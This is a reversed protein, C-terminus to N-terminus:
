RSSVGEIREALKLDSQTVGGADHTSLTMTVKTYRIDIDPHHDMEEAIEAVRDVVGIAAPFSPLRATRGIGSPDGTWGDLGAVGEAVADADLLEAM